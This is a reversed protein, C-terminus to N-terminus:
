LYNRVAFILLTIYTWMRTLYKKFGLFFWTIVEEIFVCATLFIFVIEFVFVLKEFFTSYLTLKATEIDWSTTVGGTIPIEWALRHVCFTICINLFRNKNRSRTFIHVTERVSYIFVRQYKSQIIFIGSFRSSHRSYDM